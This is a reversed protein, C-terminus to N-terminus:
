VLASRPDHPVQISWPPVPAMQDIPYVRQVPSANPPPMAYRIRPRFDLDFAALSPLRMRNCHNCEMSGTSLM